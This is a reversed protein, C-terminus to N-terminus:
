FFRSLKTSYLKRPDRFMVLAKFHANYSVNDYYSWDDNKCKSILKRRQRYTIENCLIPWGIIVAFLAAICLVLTVASVM